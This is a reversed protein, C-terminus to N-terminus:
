AAVPAPRHRKVAESARRADLDAFLAEAEAIVQNANKTVTAPSGATKPTRTASM